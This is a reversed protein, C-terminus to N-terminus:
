SFKRGGLLLACGLVIGGISAWVPVYVSKDEDISVSLPGVETHHTKTYTFGGYVLGLTGAVILGIAIIKNFEM